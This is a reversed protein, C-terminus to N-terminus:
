VGAAQLAPLLRLGEAATKYSLAADVIMKGQDGLTRRAALLLKGTLEVDDMWWPDAAFKINRLKLRGKADEVQHSVESETRGMPYITGYAEIRDRKAGGLLEHIPKGEAQGKIDWLAIDIGGMAHMMLGRRGVYDTADYMLEWLGEPD